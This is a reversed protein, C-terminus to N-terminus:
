NNWAKVGLCIAASTPTGWEIPITTGLAAPSGDLTTAGPNPCSKVHAGDDRRSEVLHNSREIRSQLFCPLGLFECEDGAHALEERDQIRDKVMPGRPSHLARSM